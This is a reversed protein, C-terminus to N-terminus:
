DELLEWPTVIDPTSIRLRENIRRIHKKKNANALHSCNWTMLYDMKHFSAVALHLADGLVDHPMVHNAIYVEVIDVIEDNVELYPIEDLLRIKDDKHPHDGESLEDVTAASTHCDHYIM